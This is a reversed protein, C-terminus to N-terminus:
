KKLNEVLVNITRAIYNLKPNCTNTNYIRDDFDGLAIKETIQILEGYIMLEEDHKNNLLKFINNLKNKIESDINKEELISPLYNIEDKVYSELINLIEIIKKNKNGFM